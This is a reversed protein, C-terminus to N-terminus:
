TRRLRALSLVGVAGIYVAATVTVAALPGSNRGLGDSLGPLNSLIISIGIVAGGVVCLLPVWAAARPAVQVGFGAVAVGAIFGFLLSMPGVLDSENMGFKAITWQALIVESAGSVI